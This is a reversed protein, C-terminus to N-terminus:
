GLWKEGVGKAKKISFDIGDTEVKVYAGNDIRGISKYTGYGLKILFARVIYAITLNNKM